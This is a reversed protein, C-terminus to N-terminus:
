RTASAPSRRGAATRGQRQRDREPPRDGGLRRDHPQTTDVQSSRSRCPSRTSTTAPCSTRAAARTGTTGAKRIAVLDFIAGVDAFFPDDRQGAFITSGDALSRDGASRSATTTRPQLAPRHQRDADAREVLPSATRGEDGDLAAAHQRPLVPRRPRSGSTTPSTRSATATGTSTSTTSPRTRSRTTTRGPPRIRM